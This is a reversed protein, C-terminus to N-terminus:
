DEALEGLDLPRPHTQAEVARRLTGEKRYIAYSRMVLIPAFELGPIASHSVIVPMAFHPSSKDEQSLRWQGGNNLRVIEGLHRAFTVSLKAVFEKDRSSAMLDFLRELNEFDAPTGDLTIAHKAAEDKLWELQEDMDMLFADYKANAEHQDIKV